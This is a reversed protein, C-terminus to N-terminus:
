KWCDFYNRNGSLLSPDIQATIIQEGAHAQALVQTPSCIKSRQATQPSAADCYVLYAQAEFARALPLGEIVQTTDYPTDSQAFWYSPCLIVEAGQRTLERISSTHAIDWCIIIGLKGLPTEVVRNPGSGPVITRSEERWLHRKAYTHQIKGDPGMLFARNYVEVGERGEGEYGGYVVWIGRKLVVEAIQRHYATLDVEQNLGTLSTEPFCILLADTDKVVRLMEKLNEDPSDTQPIQAAAAIYRESREM